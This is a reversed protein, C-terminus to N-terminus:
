RKPPTEIIKGNLLVMTNLSLGGGNLQQIEKHEAVYRTDRNNTPALLRTKIIPGQIIKM